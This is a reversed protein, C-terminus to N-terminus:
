ASGVRVLGAPSHRQCWAWGGLLAGGVPIELVVLFVRYLVVGAVVATPDLGAGVLWAIVGLEAVGAGGPTIPLLTGLRELGAAVVVVAFVPRLGVTRLCLDLLLIQSGTYAVSGVLLRSWGRRVAERILLLSGKLRRDLRVRLSDGRAARGTSLVVAGAGGLAMAAVGCAVAITWLTRPVDGPMLVLVAVAVVPLVLKAMVDLANTLVCYAVFSASTHGWRTAMRWNLATGVAGGLPVVNSVASGTLNLLLGRRLGLGPLAASLVVSYIVLGSLWVLALLGLRGGSVQWLQPVVDGWTVGAVRHTATWLGAVLVAAVLLGRWGYGIGLRM